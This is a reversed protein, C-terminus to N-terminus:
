KLWKGAKGWHSILLEFEDALQVPRIFPHADLGKRVDQVGVIDMDSAGVITYRKPLFYIHAFTRENACETHLNRGLRLHM